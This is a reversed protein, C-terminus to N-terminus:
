GLTVYIQNNKDIFLRGREDQGPVQKVNSCYADGRPGTAGADGPPGMNGTAGTAGSGTAGTPGKVERKQADTLEDYEWKPGMPGEPGIKGQPGQEATLTNGPNFQLVWKEGDWIWVKGDIEDVYFEDKDDVPDWDPPPQPFLTSAVESATLGQPVESNVSSVQNNGSYTM